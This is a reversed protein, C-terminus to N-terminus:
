LDAWLEFLCVALLYSLCDTEPESNYILTINWVFGTKRVLYKKNLQHETETQLICKNCITAQIIIRFKLSILGWFELQNTVHWALIWTSQFNSSCSSFFNFRNIFALSPWASIFFYRLIIITLLYQAARTINPSLFNSVTSWSSGM